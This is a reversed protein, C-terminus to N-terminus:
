SEDIATLYDVFILANDRKFEKEPQFSYGVDEGPFVLRIESYKCSKLADWAEEMTEIEEGVAGPDYRTSYRSILRSVSRRGQLLNVDVSKEDKVPAEGDQLMYVTRGDELVIALVTESFSSRNLNIWLDCKFHFSFSDEWKEHCITIDISNTEDETFCIYELTNSETFISKVGSDSICEKITLEPQSYVFCSLSSLIVILIAKM